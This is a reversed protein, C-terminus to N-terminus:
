PPTGPAVNGAAAHQARRHDDVHGTIPSGHNHPRLLARCGAHHAARCHHEDHTCNASRVPSPQVTTSTSTLAGAGSIGPFYGRYAALSEPADPLHVLNDPADSYFYSNYEVDNDAIFNGLGEVYAPDDGAGGVSPSALGWEPISLPKAHQAAFAAVAALGDQENVLDQWRQQASLGSQYIGSDYADVGVIDVVDDGPYWDSLPVPRYYQNVTWDFQFDAGPVARMARVINAWYAAWDRYESPDTPLENEPNSPDNAEWGLRVVSSGMGENVLNEALQTAYADYAGEAGLQPWNPPADDPVMPQSIVLRRGPAAALWALWDSDPSPPHAWWVNTWAQWDPKDDNFLLVCDYTTGALRSLMALDAISSAPYVCNTKSDGSLLPAAQAAQAMSAASLGTVAGSAPMLGVLAAVLPVTLAVAGKLLRDRLRWTSRLQMQPCARTVKKSCKLATPLTAAKVSLCQPLRCLLV